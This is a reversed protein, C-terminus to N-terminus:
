DILTIARGTKGARGTRGIRHTYDTYNRPAEYNIVLEVDPVDIGRAVVDTAILLDIHGNRFKRLAVERARQSKNGHIVDTPILDNRFMKQMKDAKRKTECFLITKQNTPEQMLKKVLLFKNEGKVHHVNQDIINTEQTTFLAKVRIADTTMEQILKEQTSDLTASFLFTLKKNIMATNIRQIDKSFGMDLMRDFEDLVLTNFNNFALSKRNAMDMLRGPTGIIVHNIRKLSKTSEAISTGGILCTSYLNLGKVLSKFEENIQNALERTPAIILAHYKGKKIILQNVIPILFAATKGTGTGSIGVLDRGTMMPPIAKEQIESPTEYGKSKIRKLLESHLQLDEFTLVNQFHKHNSVNDATSIFQSVDVGKSTNRKSKLRRTEKIQKSKKRRKTKYM